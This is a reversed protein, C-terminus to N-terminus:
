PYASRINQDATAADAAVRRPPRRLSNPLGSPAGTLYRPSSGLLSRGFIRAGARRRQVRAAEEMEMYETNAPVGASPLLDELSPM